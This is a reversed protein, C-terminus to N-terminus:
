TIEDMLNVMETVGGEVTDSIPEPENYGLHMMLNVTQARMWPQSTKM